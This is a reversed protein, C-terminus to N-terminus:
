IGHRAPVLRFGDPLKSEVVAGPRKEVAAPRPKELVIAPRKKLAVAPAVTSRKENICLAIYRFLDSLRYGM